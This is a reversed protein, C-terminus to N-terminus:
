AGGQMSRCRWSFFVSFVFVGLMSLRPCALAVDSFLLTPSMALFFSCWFLSSRLRAGADAPLGRCWFWSCGALSALSFFFSLNLPAAPMLSGLASVLFLFEALFCFLSTELFLRRRFFFSDAGVYARLRVHATSALDRCRFWSSCALSALLFSLLELATASM